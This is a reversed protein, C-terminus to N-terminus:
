DKKGLIYRRVAQNHQDLTESFQSSGDARAVFYLARGEAPHLAAHLAARGPLAIPSPPLGARTYTNYPTDTQLHVRTLNGDFAEGLGYIVSPDTQLRMGIVLRNLFVRAIMPRDAAQGTEKEILSAMILAEYPTAYPLGPARQAWATDLERQLLQAAQRLVLIDSSGRLFRYTDPFFLGEGHTANLKLKALLEADTWQSTDHRLAPHRDLEARFQRLTWGERITVGQLSTEGRVLKQMVAWMSMPQTLRYDGAKLRPADGSFKALLMFAGAHRVAGSQALTQAIEGLGQNPEITFELPFGTSPYPSLVWWASSAGLGSILLLVLFLRKLM